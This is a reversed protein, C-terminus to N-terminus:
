PQASLTRQFFDFMRQASDRTATKDYHYIVKNGRADVKSVGNLNECDWCHTVGPYVHWEVPAGASRAAELKPICDAPSTESDKEGMLVLLPRDIDDNVIEYAGGTVPKITFCGPYFSVASAFRGSPGLTTAWLKSSALVGIMAGWSYGAFAIRKQDVYDLKRLYDAAQLVDKVGRMFNVGGRAGTCVENVGRPGLSDILFAVYGRAVAEKAWTLMSVNQWSGSGLGGCQHQLVLAPFPGPGEPKYLAMQPSSFISLRSPASPFDLDRALGAAGLLRAPTMQASVASAELCLILLSAMALTARM